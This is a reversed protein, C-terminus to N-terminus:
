PRQGKEVKTRLAALGRVPTGDPCFYDVFLAAYQRNSSAERVPFWHVSKNQAWSGDDNGTAYIRRQRTECRMGEYSVSRAGSPSQVVLTYRIIGDTGISLSKDDLFFRNTTSASVYFDRLDADKPFAPLVVAEEQWPKQSDFDDDTYTGNSDDGPGPIGYSRAFCVLPAALLAALLLKRKM